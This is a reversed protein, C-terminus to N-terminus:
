PKPFVHRGTNQSSLTREGITFHFLLADDCCHCVHQQLSGTYQSFFSNTKWDLTSSDSRLLAADTPDGPLRAPQGAQQVGVLQIIRRGRLKAKWQEQTMVFAVRAKLLEVLYFFQSHRLVHDTYNNEGVVTTSKHHLDFNRRRRTSFSFEM